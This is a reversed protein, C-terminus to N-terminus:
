NSFRTTLFRYLRKLPAKMEAEVEVLKDEFRAGAAKTGGSLIQGWFVVKNDVKEVWEVSVDLSDGPQLPRRFKADHLKSLLGLFKFETSHLILWSSLQIMAELMLVGPMIPFSPFHHEFYDESMTLNKIGQANKETEIDTIRDILIFRM